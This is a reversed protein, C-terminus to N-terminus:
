VLVRVNKVNMVINRPVLLIDVFYERLNGWEYQVYSVGLINWPISDTGCLVTLFGLIKIVKTFDVEWFYGRSQM